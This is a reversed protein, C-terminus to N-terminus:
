RSLEAGSRRYERASMGTKKRFLRMFYLNDSYGCMEAIETITLDTETLLAKAHRLRLDIIYESPSCGFTRRFLERFHSVSLHESDALEAICLEETYHRHIYEMLGAFRKSRSDGDSVARGLEMLIETLKAACFDEYGRGRLIFESFIEGFTHHVCTPIGGGPRYVHGTELGARKLLTQAYSGTFHVWYYGMERDETLGYRYPTEPPHIIFEGPRFFYPAEETGCRLTGTDMLQLYYDHRVTNTLFIRSMSAYGSCNVALPVSRDCCNAGDRVLDGSRYYSQNEM